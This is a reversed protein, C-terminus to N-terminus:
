TRSLFALGSHFRPAWRYRYNRGPLRLVSGALLAAIEVIGGLGALAVGARAFSFGFGCDPGVARSSRERNCRRGNWPVLTPRYGFGLRRHIRDLEARRDIRHNNGISSRLAEQSQAVAPQGKEAVVVSRFREVACLHNHETNHGRARTDREESCRHSVDVGFGLLGVAVSFMSTFGVFRSLGQVVRPDSLAGLPKEAYTGVPRAAAVVGIVHGEDDRYVSANYLVSTVHGDRHRLELASDRVFGERLVQQYAARAKEQETFYESFDTGILEARSRGIAAETAANVDTIKGDPGVTVVPNLSAEILSRNHVSALRAQNRSAEAEAARRKATVSLHGVTSATIFFVALAIWNQPDPITLTYLPPLFFFNLCLMGLLSALM